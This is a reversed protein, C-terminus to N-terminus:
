RGAVALSRFGPVTEMLVELIAAREDAPLHEFGPAPTKAELVERIRRFVLARFPAPMGQVQPSLIMPSCRHKMLRTRLDFDRLSRGKSDARKEKQYAAIFAPDGKVGGEPLAAEGAFLFQGVTKEVHELVDALEAGEIQQLPPHGAKGRKENVLFLTNRWRYLSEYLTNLLGIQHDQVMLALVDSSPGHPYSAPAAGLSPADAPPGGRSPFLINGIHGTKEPAGTVFWGGWRERLPMTHFMNEHNGIANVVIGSADVNAPNGAADVYLSRALLGPLYNTASGAHCGTLCSERQNYRVAAPPQRETGELIFFLPGREPDYSALEIMGGPIWTMYTQDNFFLARPNHPSVVKRQLGTKSFVVTQSAPPIRLERLLWDVYGRASSTDPTKEGSAIQRKLISVPDRAEGEYYNHPPQDYDNFSVQAAAPIAALCVALAQLTKTAHMFRFVGRVRGERRQCAM